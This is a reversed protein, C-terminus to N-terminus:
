VQVHLQQQQCSKLQTQLAAMTQQFEQRQLQNKQISKQYDNELNQM